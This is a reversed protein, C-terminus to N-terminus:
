CAGSAQDRALESQEAYNFGFVQPSDHALVQGAKQSFCRCNVSDLSSQWYAMAKKMKAQTEAKTVAVGTSTTLPPFTFGITVAAGVAAAACLSIVYERAMGFGM